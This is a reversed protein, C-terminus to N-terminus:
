NTAIAANKENTRSGYLRTAFNRELHSFMEPAAVYHGCIALMDAIGRIWRTKNSIKELLVIGPGVSARPTTIDTSFKVGGATTLTINRGAM